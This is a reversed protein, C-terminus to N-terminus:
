LTPIVTIIDQNTETMVNRGCDFSNFNFSRFFFSSTFNMDIRQNHTIAKAIEEKVEDNYKM